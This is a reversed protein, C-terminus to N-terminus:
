HPIQLVENLVKKTENYGIIIAEEGRYFEYPYIHRTDPIIVLNPKYYNIQMQALADQAIYLTNQAITIIGPPKTRNNNDIVVEQIKTNDITKIPKIIWEYAYQFEPTKIQIYEEDQHPLMGNLVRVAIIYDAGMSKVVDIPVPDVLGGDVLYIDNSKVPTFVIPISISARVADLLSGKNIIYLKGTNIDVATAAFSTPIDEINKNGYLTYLFERVKEGDVIGSTSLGPIFLKSTAKWDTDLTIKQLTDIPIGSAYAAGILAGMSSGAIYDVKIGAEDLAKIVGIHALGKAAGGSLALGIKLSDSKLYSLTTTSEASLDTIIIPVLVLPIFLFSIQKRINLM